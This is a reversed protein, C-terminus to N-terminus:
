RHKYHSYKVQAGELLVMNVMSVCDICEQIGQVGIVRVIVLLKQRRQFSSGDRSGVFTKRRSFNSIHIAGLQESVSVALIQPLYYPLWFCLPHCSIKMEMNPQLHM